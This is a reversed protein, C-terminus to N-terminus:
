RWRWPAFFTALMHESMGRKRHWQAYTLDDQAEAYRHDRLLVPLTGKAFLLKEWHNFVYRAGLVAGIGNLPAPADAFKFEEYVPVGNWRPSFNPPMAWTLTHPQWLVHHAIGVDSLLAHLATYGGFFAHLGTELIDGDRDRWSSLKGGLVPRKELM